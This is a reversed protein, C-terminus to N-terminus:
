QEIGGAEFALDFEDVHLRGGYHGREQRALDVSDVREIKQHDRNEFALPKFDRRERICACAYVHRPERQDGAVGHDLLIRSEDPLNNGCHLLGDRSRPPIRLAGDVREHLARRCEIPPYHQPRELHGEVQEFGVPGLALRERPHRRLHNGLRLVDKDLVTADLLLKRYLIVERILEHRRGSEYRYLAMTMYM